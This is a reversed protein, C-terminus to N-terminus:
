PNQSARWERVKSVIQARVVADSEIAFHYYAPNLRWARDFVAPNIAEAAANFRVNGGNASGGGLGWDSDQYVNFAASVSSPVQIDNGAHLATAVGALSGLVGGIGAGPLKGLYGGALSGVTGFLLPYQLVHRPNIPDVTVLAVRKCSSPRAELMRAADAASHGGFSYGFIVITEDPTGTLSKRLAQVGATTERWNYHLAPGGAVSALEDLLMRFGYAENDPGETFGSIGLVALGAPDIFRLPANAAYRYLHPGDVAGAPDRRTWRGLGPRYDRICRDGVCIEAQSASVGSASGPSTRTRGTAPEPVVLDLAAVRTEEASAMRASATDPGALTAAVLLGLALTGLRTM